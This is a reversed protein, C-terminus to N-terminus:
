VPYAMTTMLSLEAQTTDLRTHQMVVPVDSEAMIAYPLAIPVGNGEEDKLKDFRIHRTRRAGCVASFNDMPERDEFYLTIKIHAETDGTNLVCLSEHSPFCGNSKEPLYGDAIIWVNKGVAKSM